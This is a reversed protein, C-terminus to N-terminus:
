KRCAELFQDKDFNPCTRKLAAAVAKVDLDWQRYRDDPVPVRLPLSNPEPREDRLAEAIAEYHRRTM